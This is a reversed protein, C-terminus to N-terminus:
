ARKSLINRQLFDFDCGEPAQLVHDLFLRRYGRKWAPNPPRWAARRRALEEEDVLLNLSRNEADLRIEDGERVLALPGGVAAEPAVHLVTTGGATGSMRADSVRVIDRVGAELLKRPIPLFGAEPMGPGGVPGANQLVFVSEATAGLDPDDIRRIMDEQSTFVVAKGTHALKDPSAASVKLVAGEPALNGRLVILGGEPAIPEERPAIM